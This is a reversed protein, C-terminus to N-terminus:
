TAYEETKKLFFDPSSLSNRDPLTHWNIKYNNDTKRLQWKDVINAKIEGKSFIWGEKNSTLLVLFYDIDNRDLSDIISKDVGFFPKKSRSIKVILVKAKSKLLFCKRPRFQCGLEM